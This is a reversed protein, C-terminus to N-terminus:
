DAGGAKDMGLAQVNEYNGSRIAGCLGPHTGSLWSSAAYKALNNLESFEKALATFEAKSLAGDAMAAQVNAKFDAGTFRGITSM